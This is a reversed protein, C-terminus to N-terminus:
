QGLPKTNNNQSVTIDKTPNLKDAAFYARDEYNFESTVPDVVEVKTQLNKQNSFLINSAFFAIIGSVGVLLILSAIDKSKLM